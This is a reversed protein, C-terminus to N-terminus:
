ASIKAVSIFQKTLLNTQSEAEGAVATSGSNMETAFINAQDAETVLEFNFAGTQNWSAIAELYAKQFTADMQPDIYITAQAKSWKAGSDQHHDTQSLGQLKGTEQWQDWGAQGVQVVKSVQNLTAPLDGTVYWLIGFTILIFFILTWVLRWFMRLIGLLFRCLVRIIWDMIAWREFFYSDVKLGHIGM